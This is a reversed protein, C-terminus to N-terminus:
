SANVWKVSICQSCTNSMAQHQWGWLPVRVSGEDLISIPPYPHISGKILQWLGTLNAISGYLLWSLFSSYWCVMVLILEWSFALFHSIQDTENLWFEVLILFDVSWSVYAHWIIVNRGNTRFLITPFGLNSRNWETLIPGFHLFDVSQSWFRIM